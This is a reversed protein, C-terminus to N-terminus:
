IGAPGAGVVAAAQQGGLQRILDAWEHVTDDNGSDLRKLM